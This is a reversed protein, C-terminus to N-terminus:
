VSRVVLMHIQLESSGRLLVVRFMIPFASLPVTCGVAVALAALIVHSLHQNKRQYEQRSLRESGGGLLKM